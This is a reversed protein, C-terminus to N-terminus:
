FFLLRELQNYLCTHKHKFTFYYLLELNHRGTGLTHDIAPGTQGTSTPGSARTWDFVDDKAQTWRCFDTEFTCDLVSPAVSPIICFLYFLVFHLM